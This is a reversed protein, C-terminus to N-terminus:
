GVDSHSGQGARHSTNTEHKHIRTARVKLARERSALVFHAVCPIQPTRHRHTSLLQCPLCAPIPTAPPSGISRWARPPPSESPLRRCWAFPLRTYTHVDSPEAARCARSGRAVASSSATSTHPHLQHTHTCAAHPHPARTAVLLPSSIRFAPYTHLSPARQQVPQRTRM